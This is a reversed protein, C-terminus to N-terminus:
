KEKFKISGKQSCAWSEGTRYIKAPKVAIIKFSSNPIPEEREFFEQLGSQEYMRAKFNMDIMPLAHVDKDQAPRRYGIISVGASDEKFIAPKNRKYDQVNSLRLKLLRNQRQYHQMFNPASMAKYDSLFTEEESVSPMAQSSSKEKSIQPISAEPQPSKNSISKEKKLLDKEISLLLESIQSDINFDEITAHRLNQPGSVFKGLLGKDVEKGLALAYCPIGSEQCYSIFYALSEAYEDTPMGDTCLCVAQQSSEDIRLLGLCRKLMLGLATEGQAELSTKYSEIQHKLKQEFQWDVSNSFCGLSMQTDPSLAQIGNHLGKNVHKIIEFLNLSGSIDQLWIIHIM